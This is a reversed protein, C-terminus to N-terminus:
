IHIRTLHLDDDDGIVGLRGFVIEEFSDVAESAIRESCERIDQDACDILNNGLQM